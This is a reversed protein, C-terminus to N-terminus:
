ISRSFPLFHYLLHEPANKLHSLLRTDEKVDEELGSQEPFDVFVEWMCGLVLKLM